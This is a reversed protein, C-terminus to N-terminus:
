LQVKYINYPDQATLSSHCNGGNQISFYVYDQNFAVRACKQVAAERLKPDGDLLPCRDKVAYIEREKLSQNYIHECAAEGKFVDSGSTLPRALEHM